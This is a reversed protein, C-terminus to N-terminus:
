RLKNAGLTVFLKILPKEIWLPITNYKKIGCEIFSQLVKQLRSYIKYIVIKVIRRKLDILVNLRLSLCFDNKFENKPTSGYIFQDHPSKECHHCM